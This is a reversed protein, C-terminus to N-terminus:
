VHAATLTTSTTSNLRMIKTTASSDATTHLLLPTLIKKRKMTHCYCGLAGAKQSLPLQQLTILAHVRKRNVSGPIHDACRSTTETRKYYCQKGLFWERTMRKTNNCEERLLLTCASSWCRFTCEVRNKRCSFASKECSQLTVRWPKKCRHDVCRQCASHGNNSVATAQRSM